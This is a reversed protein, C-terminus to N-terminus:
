ELLDGDQSAVVHLLSAITILLPAVFVTSHPVADLHIKTGRIVVIM